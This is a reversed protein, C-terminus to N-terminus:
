TAIFAQTLHYLDFHVRGKSKERFIWKLSVIVHFQLPYMHPGNKKKLGFTVLKLLKSQYGFPTGSVFCTIKFRSGLKELGCNVERYVPFGIKRM